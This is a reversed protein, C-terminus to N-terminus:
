KRLCDFVHNTEKAEAQNQLNTEDGTVPIQNVKGVNWDLLILLM